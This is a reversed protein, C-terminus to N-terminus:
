SGLVLGGFKSTGGGMRDEMGGGTVTSLTIWGEGLAFGVMQTRHGLDKQRRMCKLCYIFGRSEFMLLIGKEIPWKRNANLCLCTEEM